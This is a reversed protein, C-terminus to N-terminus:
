IEPNHNRAYRGFPASCAISRRYSTCTASSRRRTIHTLSSRRCPSARVGTPTPAFRHIGHLTKSDTVCIWLAYFYVFYVIYSQGGAMTSVEIIEVIIGVALQSASQVVIGPEIEETAMSVGFLFIGIPIHAVLAWKPSLPLLALSQSYWAYNHEHSSCGMWGM